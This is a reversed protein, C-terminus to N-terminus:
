ATWAFAEELYDLSCIVPPVNGGSSRDVLAARMGVGTAGRLDDQADDGVHFAEFPQVGLRTLAHDFIRRDPKEHGYVLSAVVIEFRDLWGFMELVLGLSNDWNSIAALKFKGQDLRSLAREADPFPRFVAQDKGFLLEWGADYIERAYIRSQGIAALWDSDLEIWFNRVAEDSELNARHFHALRQAYLLGYTDGAQPSLDLGISCAAQEVIRCPNWNVDILTGAVDLTVALPKM